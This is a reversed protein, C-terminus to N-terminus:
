EPPGPSIACQLGAEKREPDSRARNVNESLFPSYGQNTQPSIRALREEKDELAFLKASEAFTADRLESSVGFNFGLASCFPRAAAAKTLRSRSKGNRKRPRRAEGMVVGEEEMFPGFDVTPVEASAEVVMRTFIWCVHRFKHNPM